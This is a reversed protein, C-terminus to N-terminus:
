GCSRSTRSSRRRSCRPTRGSVATASSRARRRPGAARDERRAGRARRVGDHRLRRAHLDHRARPDSVAPRRREQELRRRHHDVCRAAAGCARRRPHARAADSVRRQDRARSQRRRVERAGDAIEAVLSADNCATPRRAQAGRSEAGRAGAQSRRRRRDRGSLQTRDGRSRHRHPDAEDAPLQVHLRAGVLQLRSRLFAHRARPDLRGQPTQENIFKTGWFGTMGLVLPHDDPLAGKGMLTHAVPIQLHDVLERLERPRTPSCSAAASMSCRSSRKWCTAERDADATEEDLSPKLLSRPTSGCGTSCRRRRGEDLVHGDARRGAGSGSPRKGRAHVGERHDRPVPAASDVRWARKVFPRYIEYQSADAHLNM